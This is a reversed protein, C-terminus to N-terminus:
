DSRSRGGPQATFYDEVARLLSSVGKGEAYVLPRGKRHARIFDTAAHKAAAWAVVFLDSNNALARLQPTGGQDASCQIDIDRSLAQLAVRAQRSANEVLSYIAITKGRLRSALEDDNPDQPTPLADFTWGFENSLSQIAARQLCSLRGLIPTLRVLVSHVLEERAAPDPAPSRMFAEILELTWYVMRVGFGEGAIENADAALERYRAADTGVSLLADVLTLSSDYVSAGRASGLALLTLLSSYISTTASNPFLPDRKLASVIYPLAQATREAALSNSQARNLAEFLSAVAAPDAAEGAIPWEEAGLRALALANTFAPDSIRTLWMSWSTPLSTSGAEVELARLASRFPEARGLEARQMDNLRALAALAASMVDVSERAEGAILRDRADDATDRRPAPGQERGSVTALRPALWGLHKSCAAAAQRLDEREPSTLAELTALRWGGTRLSAPLPAKLMPAALARVEQTYLTEVGVQDGAEFPSALRAQYLAELLLATTAPTRRARTLNAFGPLTVIEPWEEFTALLQVHLSRLNLADLRLEDHLRHLVEAAADRRGVNLHDQFRALLWSTPEPAARTLSPARAFTDRARVLARLAMERSDPDTPIRIASTVCPGAEAVAALLHAVALDTSPLGDFSTLTPGAFARLVPCLRRWDTPLAVAVVLFEGDVTQEPVLAGPFTASDATELLQDCLAETGAPFTFADARARLQTAIRRATEPDAAIM